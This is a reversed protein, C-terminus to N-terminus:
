SEWIAPLKMNHKMISRIKNRDNDTITLYNEQYKMLKIWDHYVELSLDRYGADHAQLKIKDLQKCFQYLIAELNEGTANGIHFTETQQVKLPLEDTTLVKLTLEDTTTQM